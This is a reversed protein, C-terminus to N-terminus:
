YNPYGVRQDNKLHCSNKRPIQPLANGTQKMATDFSQINTFSNDFPM